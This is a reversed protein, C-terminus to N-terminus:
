GRVGLTPRRRRGAVGVVAGVLGLVSTSPEPIARLLAGNLGGYSTYYVNDTGWTHLGVSGTLLPDTTDTIVPYKIVTGSADIVEISLTNGVARASLDFMPLGNAPTSGAPGPTYVFLPAADDRYLESWIGNRVKQV